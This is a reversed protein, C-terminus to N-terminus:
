SNNILLYGQTVYTQKGFLLTSCPFFKKGTHICLLKILLVHDFYAYFTKKADLKTRVAPKKEPSDERRPPPFLRFRLPPPPPSACVVSPPPPAAPQKALTFDFQQEIYRLFTLM